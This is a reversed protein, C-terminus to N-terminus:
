GVLWFSCVVLCFHYSSYQSKLAVATLAIPKAMISRWLTPVGDLRRVRGGEYEKKISAHSPFHLKTIFKIALVM